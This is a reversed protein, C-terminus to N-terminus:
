EVPLTLFFLQSYQMQSQEEEEQSNAGHCFAHTIHEETVLIGGPCAVIWYQRCSLPCTLENQPKGKVLGGTMLGLSPYELLNENLLLFQINAKMNWTRPLPSLQWLGRLSSLLVWWQLWKKNNQNPRTKSKNQGCHIVHSNKTGHGPVWVAEQM